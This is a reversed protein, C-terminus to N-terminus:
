ISYTIMMKCYYLILTFLSMIMLYFHLILVNMNELDLLCKFKKKMLIQILLYIFLWIVYKIYPFLIKVWSTYCHIYLIELKNPFPFLSLLNFILFERKLVLFYFSFSFFYLFLFLFIFFLLFLPLIRAVDRHGGM